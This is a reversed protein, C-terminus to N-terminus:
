TDGRAELGFFRRITHRYSGARVMAETESFDSLDNWEVMGKPGAVICRYYPPDESDLVTLTYEGYHKSNIKDHRAVETLGVANIWMPEPADEFEREVERRLDTIQDLVDASCHDLVMELAAIAGLAAQKRREHRELIKRYLQGKFTRHKLM